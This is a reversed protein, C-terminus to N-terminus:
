CQLCFEARRLNKYLFNVIELQLNYMLHMEFKCNNSLLVSHFFSIIVLSGPDEEENMFYENFQIVIKGATKNM